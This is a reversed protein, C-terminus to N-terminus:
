KEKHKLFKDKFCYFGLVILISGMIFLLIILLQEISEDKPLNSLNIIFNTIM